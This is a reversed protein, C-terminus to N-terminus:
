SPRWHGLREGEVDHTGCVPWAAGGPDTRTAISPAGCNFWCCDPELDFPRVEYSEYSGRPYSKGDWVDNAMTWTLPPMAREQAHEAALAQAAGITRRVGIADGCEYHVHHM